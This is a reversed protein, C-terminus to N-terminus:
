KSDKKTSESGMKKDTWTWRDADQCGSHLSHDKPRQNTQRGTRSSDRKRLRAEKNVGKESQQFRAENDSRNNISFCGQKRRRGFGSSRGKGRIRRKEFRIWVNIISRAWAKYHQSIPKDATWFNDAASELTTKQQNSSPYFSFSPFLPPEIPSPFIFSSLSQTSLHYWVLFTLLVLSFSPKM